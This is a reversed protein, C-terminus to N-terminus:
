PRVRDVKKRGTVSIAASLQCQRWFKARSLDSINILRFQTGFISFQASGDFLRHRCFPVVARLHEQAVSNDLRTAPRAPFKGNLYRRTGAVV